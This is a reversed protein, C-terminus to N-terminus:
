ENLFAIGEEVSDFKIINGTEINKEVESLRKKMESNFTEEDVEEWKGTETNLLKNMQEEKIQAESYINLVETQERIIFM